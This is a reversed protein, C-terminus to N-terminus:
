LETDRLDGSGALVTLIPSSEQSVSVEGGTLIAPRPHARPGTCNDLVDEAFAAVQRPGQIARVAEAHREQEQEIQRDIQAIRAKLEQISPDVM